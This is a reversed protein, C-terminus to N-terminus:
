DLFEEANYPFCLIMVTKVLVRLKDRVYVLNFRETAERDV